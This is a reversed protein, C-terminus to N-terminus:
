RQSKHNKEQVLTQSIHDVQKHNQLLMNEWMNGVVKPRDFYTLKKTGQRDQNETIRFPTDM